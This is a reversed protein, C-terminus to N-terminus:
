KEDSIIEQIRTIDASFVDETYDKQQELATMMGNDLWNDSIFLHYVVTHKQGIRHVRKIAQAYDKYLPLSFIICNSYNQLNLGTSGSATNALIIRGKKPQMVKGEALQKSYEEYYYLSKLEGCFVDVDYGLSTCADYLAIMEPTYNYLLFYNDPNEDLFKKVCEIRSTDYWIAETANGQFGVSLQRSRLWFNGPTDAFWKLDPYAINRYFPNNKKKTTEYEPNQMMKRFALEGNIDIGKLKEATFLKFENSKPLIHKVFIQDPLDVIEKSDITLAYKHVLAFFESLNKYGVIPQQWGLLGPVQGRICFEDMFRTKTWECGLMKLQNYADYYSTTFPTGTLLYTKVSTAIKALRKQMMILAKSQSSNGHKVKHSEDLILAVDQGKCADIFKAIYDNLEVDVYENKKRSAIAEYNTILLENENEKFDDSTKKVFQTWQMSSRSAWWLWSGQLDKSEWVKTNLTVVIVKKCNCAEAFGLAIPTKGLGMDLFLGFANRDKFKDVIGKQWPYLDNYISM